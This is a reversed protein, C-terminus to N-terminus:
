SPIFVASEVAALEVEDSTTLGPEVAVGDGWDEDSAPEDVVSSLRLNDPLPAKARCNGLSEPETFVGTVREYLKVPVAMYRKQM